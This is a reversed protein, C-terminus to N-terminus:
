SMRQGKISSSFVVLFGWFQCYIVLVHIYMGTGLSESKEQDESWASFELSIEQSIEQLAREVDDTVASQNVCSANTTGSSQSEENSQFVTTGSTQSEENSQFVSSLSGGRTVRAQFM